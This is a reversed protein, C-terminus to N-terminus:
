RQREIGANLRVAAMIASNRENQEIDSEWDSVPEMQTAGMEFSQGSVAPVGSRAHLGVLNDTLISVWFANAQGSLFLTIMSPKSRLARWRIATYQSSFGCCLKLKRKESDLALCRQKNRFSKYLVTWSQSGLWAGQHLHLYSPIYRRFSMYTQIQSYLQCSSYM